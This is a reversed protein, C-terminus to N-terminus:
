CSNRNATTAVKLNPIGGYVFKKQTDEVSATLSRNQNSVMHLITPPIGKRTPKGRVVGNSSPKDTKQTQEKPVTTAPISDVMKDVMPEKSAALDLADESDSAVVSLIEAISNDEIIAEEEPQSRSQNLKLPHCISRHHRTTQYLHHRHEQILRSQYTSKM